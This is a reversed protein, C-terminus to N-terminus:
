SERWGPTYVDLMANCVEVLRGGSKLSAVWKISQPDKEFVQRVSLKSARFKGSTVITNDFDAETIGDPLAVSSAPAETVNAIDDMISSIDSKEVSEHISMMEADEEDKFDDSVEQPNSAPAEESKKVVAEKKSVSKEVPQLVQVENEAIQLDSYYTGPLGLFKIAADDFARKYAMLVPYNKAIQTTLTAPISEGMCEVARGSTDSMRCIFAYHNPESCVSTFHVQVNTDRCNEDNYIVRELSAHTLIRIEAGNEYIVSEELEVEKNLYSSKIKKTEM